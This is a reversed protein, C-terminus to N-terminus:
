APPNKVTAFADTDARDEDYDVRSAVPPANRDVLWRGISVGITANLFVGMLVFAATTTLEAFLRATYLSHWFFASVISVLIGSLVGAVMGAWIWRMALDERLDPDPNARADAQGDILGWVLAVLGYIVMAAINLAVTRGGAQLVLSWHVMRCVLMLVAMVLGRLLWKAM